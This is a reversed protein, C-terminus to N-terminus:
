YTRSSKSGRLLPLRSSIRVALTTMMMKMQVIEGRLEMKMLLLPIITADVARKLSTQIQLLSKV